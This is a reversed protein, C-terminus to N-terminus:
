LMMKIFDNYESTPATIEMGMATFEPNPDLGPKKSLDDSPTKYIWKVRCQLNVKEGSPLRFKLKLATGTTFNDTVRKSIGYESTNELVEAHQYWKIGSESINEIFGSYSKGELVIEAELSVTIRKRTRRRIKQM